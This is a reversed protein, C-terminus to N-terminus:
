EVYKEDMGGRRSDRPNVGTIRVYSRTFAATSLFGTQKAIDDMSMQTHRILYNAVQEREEDLLQQFTVKEVVLLRKLTSVSVAMKEAIAQQNFQLKPLGSRILSKIRIIVDSSTLGQKLVRARVKELTYQLMEENASTVKRNRFRKYVSFHSYERGFAVPAKLIHQYSGLATNARHQFAVSSVVDPTQEATIMRIMRICTSIRLEMFASCEQADYLPNYVPYILEHTTSLCGTQFGSNFLGVFEVYNALAQQLDASYFALQALPSFDGSSQAMGAKLTFLKDKSYYCARDCAVVFEDLQIFEPFENLDDGYRHLGLHEIAKGSHVGKRSFAQVLTALHGSSVNGQMKNSNDKM